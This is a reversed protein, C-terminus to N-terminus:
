ASAAASAAHLLLELEPEAEDPDVAPPGDPVRTIELSCPVCHFQLKLGNLGPLRPSPTVMPWTYSGRANTSVSSFALVVGQSAVLQAHLLPLLASVKVILCPTLNLSPVGM